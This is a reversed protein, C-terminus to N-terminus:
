LNCAAVRIPQILKMKLRQLPHLRTVTAPLLPLQRTTRDVEGAFM